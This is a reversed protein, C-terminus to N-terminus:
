LIVETIEIREIEVNRDGYTGLDSKHGATSDNDFLMEVLSGDGRSLTGYGQWFLTDFPAYRRILGDMEVAPPGLDIRGIPNSRMRMRIANREFPLKFAVGDGSRWLRVLSSDNSLDASPGLLGLDKAVIFTKRPEPKPPPADNGCSLAAISCMVLVWVSTQKIWKSM